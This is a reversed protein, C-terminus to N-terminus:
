CSKLGLRIRYIRDLNLNRLGGQTVGIAHDFPVSQTEFCRRQLYLAKGLNFTEEAARQSVHPRGILRRQTRGGDSQSSHRVPQTLAKTAKITVTHHRSQWPWPFVYAECHRWGTTPIGPKLNWTGPIVV